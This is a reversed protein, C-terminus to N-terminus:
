KDVSRNIVKNARNLKEYRAILSEATVVGKTLVEVDKAFWRGPKLHGNIIRSLHNEHCGIMKSFQVSTIKMMFLYTKLDM